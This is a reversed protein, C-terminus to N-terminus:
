FTVMINTGDKLIFKINFGIKYDNINEYMNYYKYWTDKFRNGDIVNDDTFFVEFSGIDKGSTFNTYYTDVLKNKNHYNSDDALFLGVKIPNNDEYEEKVEEKVDNVINDKIPEVQKDYNCGCLFLIGFLIILLKKM